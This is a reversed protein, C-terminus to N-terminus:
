GDECGNLKSTRIEAVLWQRARCEFNGLERFVIRFNAYNLSTGKIYKRCCSGSFPWLLDLNQRLQVLIIFFNHVRSHVILSSYCIRIITAHGSCLVDRMVLFITCLTTLCGLKPEGTWDSEVLLKTLQMLVMWDIISKMQGCTLPHILRELHGWQRISWRQTEGRTM